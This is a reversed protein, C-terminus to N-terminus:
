RHASAPALATLRGTPTGGGTRRITHEVVALLARAVSGADRADCTIVPVDPGLALARRVDALQHTLRGDFLNVCVVFPLTSDQEFYNVAAFSVDLRRTDVLVMAGVAGRCLDDWMPWFRAQGPTGFLYLVLDEAVTRRGFDMAVTTTTKDIGPDLRDVSESAATMWAETNVPPIESISGVLTTKGVGFGGAIVIKASTPVPREPSSYSAM